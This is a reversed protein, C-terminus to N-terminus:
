NVEHTNLVRFVTGVIEGFFGVNPFYEVYFTVFYHHTVQSCLLLNEDKYMRASLCYLVAFPYDCSGLYQSVQMHKFLGTVDLLFVGIQFIFYKLFNNVAAHAEM